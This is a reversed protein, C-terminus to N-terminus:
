SPKVQSVGVLRQMKARQKDIRNQRRVNRVKIRAAYAHENLLVRRAIQIRERAKDLPMRRRYDFATLGSVVEDVIQCIGPPCSSGLSDVTPSEIGRALRELAGDWASLLQDDTKAGTLQQQMATIRVDLNPNRIRAALFYYDKHFLEFLLCGLAYADTLHSISRIGALNSLAEPGAYAPAGVSGSYMGSIPSSQVRAATGLDIAVVLRKADALCSRLNDAKLDRHSIGRNNLAEVALVIENFLELKEIAGIKEQNLFFGDVQDSLWDIAFYHCNLVFNTGAVPDLPLKLEFSSLSSALQLCREVGLLQQLIGHEREFCALRYQDNLNLPDIDYFKLAVLKENIRDWARFVLSFCGRKPGVVPVNILKLQEFRGDLLPLAELTDRLLENNSHLTM